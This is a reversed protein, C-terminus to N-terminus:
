EVDVVSCLRGEGVKVVEGECTVDEKTVAAAVVIGSATQLKQEALKVLVYDRCPTVNEETMKLGNYYLMIDDDRIITLQEDNYTISTGDFKGFLVSTGPSVPSTIRIASHPHIKGPGSAIVEGETPREKAQDPLLIGGETATLVDKTRVFVFNGLPTIPGRITEGDLNYETPTTTSSLAGTPNKQGHLLPRPSFASSPTASILLTTAIFLLSSPLIM